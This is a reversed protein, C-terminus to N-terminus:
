INNNDHYLQLLFTIEGLKIIYSQCIASYIYKFFFLFISYLHVYLSVFKKEKGIKGSFTRVTVTNNSSFSPRKRVNNIKMFHKLFHCNCALM